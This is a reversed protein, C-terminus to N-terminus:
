LSVERGTDNDREVEFSDVKPGGLLYARLDPKHATLARYDQISLLVARESGHRTIIQPGKSHADEIVESLRTKAEQVQWVAM